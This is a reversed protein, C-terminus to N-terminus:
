MSKVTVYGYWILLGGLIFLWVKVPVIIGIIVIGGAMLAIGIVRKTNLSNWGM